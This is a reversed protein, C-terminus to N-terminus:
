VGCSVGGQPREQPLYNNNILWNHVERAGQTSSYQKDLVVRGPVDKWLKEEKVEFYRALEVYTSPRSVCRQSAMLEAIGLAAM